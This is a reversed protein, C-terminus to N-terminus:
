RRGVATGTFGSSEWDAPWTLAEVTATDGFFTFRAAFKVPEALYNYWEVLFVNEATWSGRVAVEYRDGRGHRPLPLVPREGFCSVPGERQLIEYRGDPGCPVDFAERDWSVRCRDGTFTLTFGRLGLSSPACRYRKGSIEQILTRPTPVPSPVPAARATVAAELAAEGEPDPALPADSSAAPYIYDRLLMTPTQFDAATLVVVLDLKRNM